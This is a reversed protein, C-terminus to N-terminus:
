FRAAQSPVLMTHFCSFVSYVRSVPFFYLFLNTMYLVKCSHINETITFIVVNTTNMYYLYACSYSELSRKFDRFYYDKTYKAHFEFLVFSCDFLEEILKVCPEPKRRKRELDRLIM